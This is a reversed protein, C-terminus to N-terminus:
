IRACLVALPNKKKEGLCKCVCVQLTLHFFFTLNCATWDIRWMSWFSPIEIYIQGNNQQLAAIEKKM